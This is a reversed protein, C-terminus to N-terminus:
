LIIVHKKSIFRGKNIITQIHEELLQKEVVNILPKKTSPDLYHLVRESENQLRNEVHILYEPAELEKIYNIGDNKYFITTEELFPKEFIESYVKEM